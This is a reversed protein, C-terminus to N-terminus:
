QKIKPERKEREGTYLTEDIKEKRGEWKDEGERGGEKKRERMYVSRRGQSNGGGENIQMKKRSFCILIKSIFIYLEWPTVKYQTAKMIFGNVQGRLSRIERLSVFM